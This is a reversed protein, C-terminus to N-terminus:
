AADPPVGEPGRRAFIRALGLGVGGASRTRAPDARSFRDFIKALAHHPIGFGEDEVEISLWGGWVYRARLEAHVESLVAELIEADDRLPIVVSVFVDLVQM